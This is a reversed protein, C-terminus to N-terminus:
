QLLEGALFARAAESEPREFFEAAPTHELLRGRQLFVVDDAHRRAQSLDHTTMVIKTGARHIADIIGEILRTAGPDLNATPEDLFLVQPQLAWASDRRSRRPTKKAADADVASNPM